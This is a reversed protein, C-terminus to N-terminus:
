YPLKALGLAAALRTSLQQYEEKHGSNLMGQHGPEDPSSQIGLDYVLVLAGASAVVYAATYGDVINKARDDTFRPNDAGPPLPHLFTLLLKVGSGPLDRVQYLQTNCYWGLMFVHRCKKLAYVQGPTMAPQAKTTWSTDSGPLETVQSGRLDAPNAYAYYSDDTKPSREFSSVIDTVKAAPDAGASQAPAFLLQRMVSLAPGSGEFSRAAGDRATEASFRAVAAKTKAIREADTASAFAAVVTEVEHAIRTVIQAARAAPPLAPDLSLAPAVAKGFAPDRGQAITALIDPLPGQAAAQPPAMLPVFLALSFLHWRVGSRRRGEPAVPEGIAAVPALAIGAWRRGGAM